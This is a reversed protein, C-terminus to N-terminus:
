LKMAELSRQIVEADGTVVELRQADVVSAHTLGESFLIAQEGKEGRVIVYKV